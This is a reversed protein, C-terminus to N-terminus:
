SFIGFTREINDSVVKKVSEYETKLATREAELKSLDMDFKKDKNNLQKMNHEYEAEAKALETKDITSTTTYELRADSSVATSAFSLHGKKDINARDITIKGSQVMNQLWDGDTAAYGIGDIGNFESIAKINEGNEQIQKFMSVYYAFDAQNYDSKFNTEDENIISGFIEEGQSKFMDYNAEDVLNKYTTYLRKSEEIDDKTFEFDDILEAERGEENEFNFFQQITDWDNPDSIYNGNEDKELFNKAFDVMAQYAENIADKNIGGKYNKRYEDVTGSFDVGGEDSGGDPMVGTLMYFAFGEATM